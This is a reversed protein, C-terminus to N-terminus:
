NRRNKLILKLKKYVDNALKDVVDMWLDDDEEVHPINALDINKFEDVYHQILIPLEDSNDYLWCETSRWSAEEFGYGDESVAAWAERVIDNLFSEIYDNNLLEEKFFKM